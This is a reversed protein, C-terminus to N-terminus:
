ASFNSTTSESNWRDTVAKPSPLLIRSKLLGVEQSDPSAPSPFSSTHIDVEEIHEDKAKGSEITILVKLVEDMTPRLERDRQLCQFALEAVSVIMRKVEDDSDFDLTPDVLESLAGNQIKKIALESLNIEDTHREMDVAPKSSILEVLVVGFSYVDSKSTLQYCRHYEPDVYGPTGQPATSVHTVDNPFLRSLGFDAVKVCFNNDLLINNTKVDRHIIDSAHLYSLSIATDIAIKMRIHWPLLEGHIHSAVTGNEVFEYVLLLESRHPSTCYGYLSVLNKHRLRALIVIENMFQEMRRYNHEYLRKVAIDRGDRLKGYYVTGFGGQGLQTTHHFNKTAEKLEKYSFLPVGFYGRRSEAEPNADSYTSKSLYQLDSPVHKRQYRRRLFCGIILIGLLSSMGLGIGLGLKLAKKNDDKPVKDCYFKNNTDLQCQGRRRNFCHDCDPSLVVELEIESSVFSLVDTTNIDDKTAFHVLTCHSFIGGADHITPSTNNKDYYIDYDGCTQNGYYSPRKIGLKHNCRFLTVNYQVYISLLPSPPPLTYTTGLAHCKNQELRAHFDGDYVTIISNSDLPGTLVLSTGNKELQITKLSYYNPNDCGHIFLLGCHPLEAKTFPYQFRGRDGCDFSRPCNQQKENVAHRVPFLIILLFLLLLYYPLAM